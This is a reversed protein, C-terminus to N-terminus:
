PDHHKRTVFRSVSKSSLNWPLKLTVPERPV